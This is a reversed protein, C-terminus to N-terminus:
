FGFDGIREPAPPEVTANPLGGALFARLALERWRVEAETNGFLDVGSVEDADAVGQLTVDGRGQFVLIGAEEGAGTHEVESAATSTEETTKGCRARVEMEGTTVDIGLGDLPAASGEGGRLEGDVLGM